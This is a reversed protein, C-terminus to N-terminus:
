RTPFSRRHFAAFDERCLTERRREVAPLLKIRFSCVNHLTFCPPAPPFFMSCVTWRYVFILRVFSFIWCFLDEALHKEKLGRRKVCELWRDAWTFPLSPVGVQTNDAQWKDALGNLQPLGASFWCWWKKLELPIFVSTIYLNNILKIFLPKNQDDLRHQLVVFSGNNITYKTDRAVGVSM